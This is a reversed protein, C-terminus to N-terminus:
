AASSASARAAGRARPQDVHLGARLVDAADIGLVHALYVNVVGGHAVVAVTQGPHAAVVREVAAVVGRRVVRRHRRRRRLELRRRGGAGLAPRGRGAAGRDPHVRQRPPRVRRPGRRRDPRARDRGGAAGGDRGGAAAPEHLHRRDARRGAVGGAGRGPPPRARRAAPRGAEALEVRVPLAHRILLLEMSARSRLASGRGPGRRLAVVARRDHEHVARHVAAGGEGPDHRQEAGGRRASRGGPSRGSARGRRRAPRRRRGRRRGRRRSRRARRRRRRRRRGCGRRRRRGRRRRGGARRRAHGDAGVLHRHRPLRPPRRAAGAAGRDGLGVLVAGGGPGLAEQAAHDAVVTPPSSGPRAPRGGPRPGPARRRAGTAACPVARREVEGRQPARHADAHPDADFSCWRRPAASSARARRRRSPGVTMSPAWCPAWRECGSANAAHTRDISPATLQEITPCSLGPVESM